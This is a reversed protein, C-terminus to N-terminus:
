LLYGLKLIIINCNHITKKYFVNTDSRELFCHIHHVLEKANGTFSGYLQGCHLQSLCTATPIEAVCRQRHHCPLM